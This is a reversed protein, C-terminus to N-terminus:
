NFPLDFEAALDYEKNGLSNLVRYHGAPLAGYPEMWYSLEKSQEPMLTYGLDRFIMATFPPVDYWKDGVLVQLSFYEGFFYDEDMRNTLRVTLYDKDVSIVEYDVDYKDTPERGVSLFATNWSDGQQLFQRAVPFYAFNASDWSDSFPYDTWVTDFDFDFKYKKGDWTFLIGNSWAYEREFRDQDMLSFGYIPYTLDQFSWNEAPAAKAASLAKLFKAETGTDYLTRMRFSSGDKMCCVTLASDDLTMNKFITNKKGANEKCGAALLLSAALLLFIAKKM